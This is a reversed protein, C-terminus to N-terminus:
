NGYYVFPTWFYPEKNQEDFKGSIFEMKTKYIAKDFPINKELAKKYMSIMFEKTATDDVQWLSVSLGKAGAILWSQTLGVVGEGGYIRGLETECASLNLFEAQIDLEAIERMRLYGDNLTDVNLSLVLASLEPIETVVTGHTAFHLIRYNKLEGSKNM